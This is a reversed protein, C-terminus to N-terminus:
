QYKSLDIGHKECYLHLGEGVLDNASANTDREKRLAHRIDELIEKTDKTIRIHTYEIKKNKEVSHNSSKDASSESVLTESSKVSREQQEIMGKLKTNGKIKTDGAVAFKKKKPESM